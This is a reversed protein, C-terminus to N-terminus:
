EDDSNWAEDRIWDNMIESYPDRKIIKQNPLGTLESYIPTTAFFGRDPCPKGFEGKYCFTEAGVRLLEKFLTDSYEKLILVKDIQRVSHITLLEENTWKDQSNLIAVIWVGETELRLSEFKRIHEIVGEQSPSVFVALIKDATNESFTVLQELSIERLTFCSIGSM